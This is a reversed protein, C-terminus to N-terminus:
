SRFFFDSPISPEKKLKQLHYTPHIAEVKRKKIKRKQNFNIFFVPSCFLFFFFFFCLNIINLDQTDSLVSSCSNELIPEIGM